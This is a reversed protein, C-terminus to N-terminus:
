IRTVKGNDYVGVTTHTVTEKQFIGKEDFDKEWEVKVILWKEDNDYGAAKARDVVDQLSEVTAEFTDNSRIVLSHIGDFNCVEFYIGTRKMTM